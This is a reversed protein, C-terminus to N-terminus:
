SGTNLTTTIQESAKKTADAVSARETFISVLMDPLINATEVNAWNPSTPTFRSNKATSDFVSLYPDDQHLTLLTTTNPIVGGVTAMQTQYKTGSLLKVWELALDQSKSKTAIGLDSGGLFV